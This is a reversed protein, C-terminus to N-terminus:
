QHPQPLSTRHVRHRRNEPGYKMRNLASLLMQAATAYTQRESLEIRYKEGIEARQM